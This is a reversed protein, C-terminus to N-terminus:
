PVKALQETVCLWTGGLAVGVKVDVWEASRRLVDPAAQSGGHAFHCRVLGLRLFRAPWDIVSSQSLGHPHSEASM